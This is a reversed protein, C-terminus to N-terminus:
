FLQETSNTSDKSVRRDSREEYLPEGGLTSCRRDPELLWIAPSPISVNCVQWQRLVSRSQADALVDVEKLSIDLWAKAHQMRLRHEQEITDM